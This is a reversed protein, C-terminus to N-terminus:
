FEGQIPWKFDANSIRKAIVLNYLNTPHRHKTYAEIKQGAKDLIGQYLIHFGNALFGHNYFIPNLNYFGHNYKFLPAVTSIIGNVKVMNCLNKFAESINFCHELVSSDIVIDFQRYYNEPLPQNLDLPTEIGRVQEIDFVTVEINDHKCIDFFSYVKTDNSIKHMKRIENACTDESLSDVISKEFFKSITKESVSLDPYGIAACKCGTLGFVRVAKLHEEFHADLIAM